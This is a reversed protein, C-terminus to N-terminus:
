KVIFNIEWDPVYPHKRLYIKYDSNLKHLFLPIQFLDIDFHYAAIFFKPASRRIYENACSLTEKEAGEVDMKIYSPELKHENCINSFTDTIITKKKVGYISAQRGGTTAFEITGKKNWIAINVASFNPLTKYNNCLKQYNKPDAEVALIHQYKNKTLNLFEQVTDGTYAGLDAYVENNNLELIKLDDQRNTTHDFLYHIKGSFKYNLMDSFVQRSWEDALLTYTTSLENFHYALWKSSVTDDNYLGLHPAITEHKKNLEKFRELVEPLESAFAIVLLFNTGLRQCIDKYHEVKINRFIQGRIFEDSAFLGAVPVNNIECFDIIRDAANGTGYIVLPQKTNKTQLIRDWASMSEIIFNM